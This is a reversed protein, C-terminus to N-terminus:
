GRRGGNPRLASGAEGGAAAASRSRAFGEAFPGEGDSKLGGTDPKAHRPPWHVSAAVVVWGWGWRRAEEGVSAMDSSSHGICMTRQLLFIQCTPGV